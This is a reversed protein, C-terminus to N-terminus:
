MEEQADLYNSDSLRRKQELGARDLRDAYLLNIAPLDLIWLRGAGGAEDRMTPGKKAGGEKSQSGKERDGV